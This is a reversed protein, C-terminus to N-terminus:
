PPQQILGDGHTLGIKGSYVKWLPFNHSKIQGYGSKQQDKQKQENKGNPRPRLVRRLQFREFVSSNYRYVTNDAHILDLAGPIPVYTMVLRREM